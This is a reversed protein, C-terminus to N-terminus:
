RLQGIGSHGAKGTDVYSDSAGTDLLAHAPLGQIEIDVVAFASTCGLHEPEELSHVELSLGQRLAWNKRM